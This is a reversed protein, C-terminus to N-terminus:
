YYNLILQTASEEISKAISQMKKASINGASGKIKHALSSVTKLDRSHYYKRIQVLQFDMDDVFTSAVSKMLENNGLMRESFEKDNSYHITPTLKSPNGSSRALM